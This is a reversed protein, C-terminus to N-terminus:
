GSPDATLRQELAVAQGRTVSEQAANIIRLIATMAMLDVRGPLGAEYRRLVERTYISYVADADVGSFSVPQGDRLLINGQDLQGGFHLADTTLSFYREYAGSVVYGVEIVALAGSATQLHVSALDEIQEHHLAHTTWCSVTVVPEDLLSLFLDVGHPGFNFLPGAGARAPDLMWPVGWARYREPPGAFLRFYGHAVRGLRGAEKLGVLAEVGAMYRNVLAISNFVGAERAERAVPELARWHIGAPKEMHFAQRRAVLDAALATMQDHPAHAFVLDPKERELLARYDTYHPHDSEPDLRELVALDPDALGVLRAESLKLAELYYVPVHWHSAGIIAVRM